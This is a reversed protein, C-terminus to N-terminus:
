ADTDEKSVNDQRWDCGADEEEEIRDRTYWKWDKVYSSYEEGGSKTLDTNEMAEWLLKGWVHGFVYLGIDHAGFTEVYLKQLNIFDNKTIYIPNDLM